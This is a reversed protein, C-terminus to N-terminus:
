QAAHLLRRTRVRCQFVGCQTCAFDDWQEAHRRTVGGTYSRMFALRHNCWPCSLTPPVISLMTTRREPAVTLSLRQRKGARTVADTFQAIQIATEARMTALAVRGQPYSALAILRETEAVLNDSTAASKALVRDAGALRARGREAPRTEATVVLIPVGATAQDRRLAQGLAYGDICPLALETIVVAPTRRSAHTLAERGNSAEIVEWQNFEFSARYLAREGEDADVVLIPGRRAPAPFVM